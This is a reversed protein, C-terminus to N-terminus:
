RYCWVKHHRRVCSSRSNWYRGGHYYNYYGGHWRYRYNRGGHHYHGPGIHVGVVVAAAPAADLIPAAAMAAALFLTAIKM